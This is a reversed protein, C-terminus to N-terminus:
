SLGSQQTVQLCRKRDATFFAMGSSGLQSRGCPRKKFQVLGRSLASAPHKWRPMDISWFSLMSRIAVIATRAEEACRSTAINADTRCRRNNRVETSRKMMHFRLSPAAAHLAVWLSSCGGIFKSGCDVLCGAASSCGAASASQSVLVPRTACWFGLSNVLREFSLPPTSYLWAQPELTM